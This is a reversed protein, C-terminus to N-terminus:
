EEASRFKSIRPFSHMVQFITCVLVIEKNLEPELLKLKCMMICMEFM